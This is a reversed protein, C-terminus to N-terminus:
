LLFEFPVAIAGELVDGTVLSLLMKKPEVNLFRIKIM